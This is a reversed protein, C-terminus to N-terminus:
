SPSTSHPSTPSAQIGLIRAKRQGDRTAQATGLHQKHLFCLVRSLAGALAPGDGAQGDGAPSLALISSYITHSKCCVGAHM